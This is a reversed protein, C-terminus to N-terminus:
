ERDTKIPANGPAIGNISPHTETVFLNPISGPISKISWNKQCNGM